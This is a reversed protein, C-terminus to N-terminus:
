GFKLLYKFEKPCHYIQEGRSIAKCIERKIIKKIKKFDQRESLKKYRNKNLFFLSGIDTIQFLSVEKSKVKIKKDNLVVEDYVFCKLIFNDPRKPNFKNRYFGLKEGKCNKSYFYPPRYWPDCGYSIDPYIKELEELSSIVANLKVKNKEFAAIEKELNNTLCVLKKKYSKISAHM